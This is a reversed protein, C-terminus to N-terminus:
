RGNHQARWVLVVRQWILSAFVVHALLIPGALWVSRVVMSALALILLGLLAGSYAALHRGVPTDPWGPRLYIVLFTATGVTEVFLLAAFVVLLATV